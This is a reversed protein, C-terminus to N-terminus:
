GRRQIAHLAATAIASVPLVEVAANLDAAAKPMGYVLSTQRDQAITHWGAQRLALLGTAGDRGMGTLLIAAGKTQWHRKVSLFFADVSPRYPYDTPERTYHFAQDAGFVLHDNTGALYVTNRAPREGERALVVPLVCQEGLWAALGPAFQADVHQVVVIAAGADHPMRSLVDVLAAPGGTSAGIAILPTPAPASAAAAPARAGSILMQITAIKKLLESDGRLGEGPVYAPTAIADLAGLGMAEFVKAANGAVTATVVLIACPTEKMIRRTAEVGDMVPMILDMLILDPRDAACKEVAEAGNRAIWAVEYGPVSLVVRRLIEVAMPLDNVIAIRM